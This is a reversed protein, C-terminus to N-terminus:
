YISSKSIRIPMPPIIKRHESRYIVNYRNYFRAIKKLYQRTERYSITEVFELMSCNKCRSLWRDVAKPGANYAAAAVLYNDGYHDLLKRFYYTALPINIHPLSLDRYKFDLLKMEKALKLATYPMIQLLGRAGVISIASPNYYSEARMLSYIMFSDVKHEEASAAVISKFALPYLTKWYRRHSVINRYEETYSRNLSMLPGESLRMIRQAGVYYGINKSAQELYKGGIKGIYSRILAKAVRLSKDGQLSEPIFIQNGDDTPGSLMRSRKEPLAADDFLDRNLSASVHGYFSSRPESMIRGFIRRSREKRDLSELARGYWFQARVKDKHVWCRGGFKEVCREYYEVASLFDHSRILSWFSLWSYRRRNTKELRSFVKFASRHQGNDRLFIGLRHDTNVGHDSLRKLYFIAKGVEKRDAMLHFMLNLYERRESQNKLSSIKITNGLLLAEDRLRWKYLYRFREFDRLFRISGDDVKLLGSIKALLWEKIGNNYNISFRMSKLFDISYIQDSDRCSNIILDRLARKGESSPLHWAVLNQLISLGIEPHSREVFDHLAVLTSAKLSKWSRIRRDRGEYLDVAKEIDGIQRYSLILYKIIDGRWVSHLNEHYLKTFIAISERYKGLEYFIRAKKLSIIIRSHNDGSEAEYLALYQLATKPSSEIFMDVLLLSAINKQFDMYNDDSAVHSLHTAFSERDKQNLYDLPLNIIGFAVESCCYWFLICLTFIRPRM